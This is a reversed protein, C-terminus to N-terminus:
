LYKIDIAKFPFLINQVHIAFEPLLLKFQIM